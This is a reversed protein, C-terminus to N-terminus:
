ITKALSKIIFYTIGWSALIIVLGIIGATMLEKAKTINEEAGMATMWKFGGVLIIVVALIGLFTMAFNIISTASKIPDNNSLVLQNGVGSAGTLGLQDTTPGAAMVMTPLVLMSFAVLSFLIKKM